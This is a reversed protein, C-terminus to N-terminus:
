WDSSALFLGYRPASPFPSRKPSAFAQPFPVEVAQTATNLHCAGENFWSGGDNIAPLTLAHLGWREHQSDRWYLLRWRRHPLACCSSGGSTHRGSRPTDSGSDGGEVQRSDGRVDRNSYLRSLYRQGDRQLSGAGPSGNQHFWCHWSQRSFLQGPWREGDPWEHLQHQHNQREEAADSVDAQVAIAEPSGSEHLRAVLDEAAEKSRTYDVVVRAGEHGLEEAIARGIGRSAGTIVIVAGTITGMQFRREM